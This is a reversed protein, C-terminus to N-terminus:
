LRANMQQDLLQQNARKHYLLFSSDPWIGLLVEQIKWTIKQYMESHNNERTVEKVMDVM